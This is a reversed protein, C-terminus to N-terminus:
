WMHSKYTAFALTYLMNKGFSNLKASIQQLWIYKLLSKPLIGRLYFSTM